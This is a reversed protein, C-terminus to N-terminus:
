NVTVDWGNGELVSKAALGTGSPTANTGGDMEVSGNLIGNTSLAVLINDVALQTL